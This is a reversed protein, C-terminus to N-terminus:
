HPIRSLETMPCRLAERLIVFSLSTGHRRIHVTPIICPESLKLLDPGRHRSGSSRRLLCQSQKTVRNSARTSAQRTDREAVKM